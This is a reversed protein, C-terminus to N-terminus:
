GPARAPSYGWRVMLPGMSADVRAQDEPALPKFRNKKYDAVSELYRLLRQEYRPSFELDLQSYIRRIVGVPDSELEEFAVEALRGAPLRAAQAVFESEMKEYLELFRDRYADTAPPDQLQFLVQGERAFHMNSRYVDYPNRHIHVIRADPSLELLMELRGTNCPNKLVPRRGSWFVLKRLLRRNVRLWGRRQSGSFGSPYLFRDYERGQAPFVWGWYPSLSSECAIAFEEENASFLHFQMADMPRQWPIFAGILGSMPWGFLLAGIPNLVHHNRPAVLQPDLALLNHLHTTGSRHVGLIFIPPPVARRAVLPAILREPLCIVENIASLVLMGILRAIYDPGVRWHARALVALQVPISALCLPMALPYVRKLSSPIAASSTAPPVRFPLFAAALASVASLAWFAPSQRPDGSVALWPLWPSERVFDLVHTQEVIRITILFGGLLGGGLLISGTRIRLTGLVIQVLVLGVDSRWDRGSFLRDPTGIRLLLPFAVATALVAVISGYRERFLSLFYGSLVLQHAFAVILAVPTIWIPDLWDIWRSSGPYGMAGVLWCTGYYAIGAVLGISLGRRGVRAWDAPIALGYDAAPRHEAVALAILSILAIPLLLHKASDGIFEPQLRLLWAVAQVALTALLTFAAWV